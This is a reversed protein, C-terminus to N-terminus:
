GGKQRRQRLVCRGAGGASLGLAFLLLTAPEPAAAAGGLRVGNADYFTGSGSAISFTNVQNGANDFLQIGSITATNGFLSKLNGSGNGQDAFTMMGMEYNAVSGFVIPITAFVTSTGGFTISSPAGLADLPGINYAMGPPTTNSGYSSNPGAIQYGNGYITAFTELLYTPPNLLSPSNGTGFRLLLGATGKGVVSLSGDITVAIKMTGSTGNTVGASTPKFTEYFIGYSEATNLTANDANGIHVGQSQSKLQGYQATVSTSGSYNWPGFNSIGTGSTSLADTLPGVGTSGAVRYTGSINDSALITPDDHANFPVAGGFGGFNFYVSDPARYTQFNSEGNTARVFTELSPGAARVSLTPTITLLAFLTIAAAKCHIQTKM